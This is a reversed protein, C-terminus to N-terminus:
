FNDFDSQNAKRSNKEKKTEESKVYEVIFDQIQGITLDELEKTSLHLRKLM